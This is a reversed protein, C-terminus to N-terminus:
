GRPPGIFMLPPWPVGARDQIQLHLHPGSSCGSNGSFGILTGPVVHDGIAAVPRSQHGYKVTYAGDLTQIQVVLGLNEHPADGFSCYRGSSPGVYTVTGYLVSYLPTGVPVALDIGFHFFPRGPDVDYCQCAPPYSACTLERWATCGFGQSIEWGGNPAVPWGAFYGYRVAAPTPLPKPYAATLGQRGPGSSNAGPAYPDEQPLLWTVLPGPQRAGPTLDAIPTPLAGIRNVFGLAHARGAPGAIAITVTRRENPLYTGREPKWRPIGAADEGRDGERWTGAVSSGDASLIERIYTQLPWQVDFTESASENQTDLVWIHVMDGSGGPIPRTSYSQLTFRLSGIRIDQDLYFSSGSGRDDPSLWRFYPTMTPVPTTCVKEPPAPTCTECGPPTPPPDVEWCITPIPSPTPANWYANSNSISSPAGCGSVILAALLIPPLLQVARRRVSRTLSPTSNM